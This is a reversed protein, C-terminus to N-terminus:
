FTYCVAGAFRNDTASDADKYDTKMNTYEVAFTVPKVTLFLSTFLSRNQSRNKANLDAADPSDMGYGINWSLQKTIDVLLEGWGGKAAIGTKLKTNIGQGVGGFYPDLNEGQWVIGQLSVRDHIPLVLSGIVSYTQYDDADTATVTGNTAADLKEMGYHGSVGIKTPKETLLRTELCVNAQITPFGADAGDDQTGSDLNEGVTRAASVKTVLRTHAALPTNRGVIFQPRRQGLGGGDQLSTMNVMRPRVTIFADWDQGARIFGYTEHALEAYALRLRPNPSNATTGSDFDIELKGSLRSAGWEPSSLDLGLRTYRASMNFENDDEGNAKPLVYYMKDGPQARTTDYSADLRIFGYLRLHALSEVTQMIAQPGAAPRSVAPANGCPPEAAVAAAASRAAPAKNTSITKSPAHISSAPTEEAGTNAAFAGLLLSMGWGFVIRKIHSDM